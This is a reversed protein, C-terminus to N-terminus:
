KSGRRHSKKVYIDSSGSAYLDATQAVGGFYFDSSGSVSVKLSPTEGDDISTDGSGSIDVNIGGKVSDINLDGSGRGNHVLDGLVDGIEVDSSGSIDIALPGNIDELDIDGSGRVSIDATKLNDADLNGSGSVKLRLENADGMDIDGSGRVKIDANGGVDGLYLDASGSINASLDHSLDGLTVKGCSNLNIDAGSLDDAILFPISNRIVLTTDEPANITIKPYDRLNKYGGIRGHKESNFLNISFSGHFGKCDRGNPKAIGGDIKFNNADEYIQVGKMNAEDKLSIQSGSTTKISIRGIFNEILLEPNASAQGAVSLSLVAAYFVTKLM